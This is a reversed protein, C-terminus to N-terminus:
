IAVPTAGGEDFAFGLEACVASVRACLVQLPAERSAMRPRLDLTCILSRRLLEAHAEGLAGAQGADLLGAERCASILAANATSELLHPLSAAEALLLGQLAFEIDLLGGRGQKLDFWQDDSRDREARWRRRM